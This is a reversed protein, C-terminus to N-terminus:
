TRGRPRWADRLHQPWNRNSIVIMDYRVGKTVLRPQQAMFIEAARAIREVQKPLVAEQAERLSNRVKVEIFCIIGGPSRAVIDIEGAHTRVRRGLVRYGKAVLLLIALLEGRRGRREAARKAQLFRESTM